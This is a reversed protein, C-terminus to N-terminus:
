YSLFTTRGHIEFTQSDAFLDGNDDNVLNNGPQYGRKFENIEKYLDRINKNKSIKALENIKNKTYQRIKNTFNTSAEPRVNNLNDCNIESREQLWQLKAQKGQDLLKSCGEDFCPKYKRMENYDISEKASININERITKGNIEMEADLDELAAFRNSVEIRYKEKGEL